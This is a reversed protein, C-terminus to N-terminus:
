FGSGRGQTQHPWQLNATPILVFPCQQQSSSLDPAPNVLVPFSDTYVSVIHEDPNTDSARDDEVEHNAVM